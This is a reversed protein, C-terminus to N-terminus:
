PYFYHLTEQDIIFNTLLNSILNQIFDNLFYQLIGRDERWSSKSANHVPKSSEDVGTAAWWVFMFDQSFQAFRPVVDRDWSGLTPRQTQSSQPFVSQLAQLFLWGFSTPPSSSSFRSVPSALFCKTRGIRSILPEFFRKFNFYFM